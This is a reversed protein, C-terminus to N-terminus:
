ARLDGFPELNRSGYKKLNYCGLTFQSVFPAVVSLVVVNLMIVSLMVVVNITVVSLM